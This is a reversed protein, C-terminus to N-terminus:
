PKSNELNVLNDLAICLMDRAWEAAQRNEYVADPYGSHITFTQNDVKLQVLHGEPFEETPCAEVVVYREM